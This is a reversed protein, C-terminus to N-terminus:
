KWEDTQGVDIVTYGEKRFLSMNDDNNFGRPYDKIIGIRINNYDKFQPISDL